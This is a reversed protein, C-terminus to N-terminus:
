IANHNYSVPSLDAPSKSFNSESKIKHKNKEDNRKENLPKGHLHHSRTSHSETVCGIWGSLIKRNKNIILFVFTLKYIKM